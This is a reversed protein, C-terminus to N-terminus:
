RNDNNIHSNGMFGYCAIIYWDSGDSQITYSMFKVRLDISLEGDITESGDADITVENRKKDDIRKIVLVQNNAESASPLEITVDNDSADVLITYDTDLPTYDDYVTIINTQFGITNVDRTHLVGNQDAVVIENLTDDQPLIRVRLGGDVDLKQTPIPTGIGVNGSITAINFGNAVAGELDQLSDYDLADIAALIDINTQLVIDAAIREAEEADINNQLAIDAAIRASEEADIDNQLAIDAAIRAAEEVDIENQLAIDAAIRTVEEADINNQLAIDEAIRAAEEADINAQLAVDGAIRAATEADLNSQLAIDAAIRAAEEADINAQLAVDGAIRAATEADLNNQLIIDAALRAAEEADINAQLILDTAILNAVTVDIDVGDVTGSVAINGIVELKNTPSTTGIGINDNVECIVSDGLANSDTFKPIFNVTGSGGFGGGSGGSIPQWTGVGNADSTLVYGNVAGTPMRFGTMQITGDVDLRYQPDIIGIGVRGDEQIRFLEEGTSDSPNGDHWVHWIEDDADNDKDIIWTGSGTSSVAAASIPALGSLAIVFMGLVLTSIRIINKKM